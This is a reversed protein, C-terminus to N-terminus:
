QDWQVGESSIQGKIVFIDREDKYSFGYVLIPIINKCPISRLWDVVTDVFSFSVQESTVVSGYKEYSEDLEPNGPPLLGQYIIWGVPHYGKTKNEFDKQFSM